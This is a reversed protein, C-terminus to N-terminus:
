ADTGAEPTNVIGRVIQAAGVGVGVTPLVVASVLGAGLGKFFGSTGEQRAGLIPAAVLAATGALIGKGASQLGSSLGSIANQPRRLSFVDNFDM